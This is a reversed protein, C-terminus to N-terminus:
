LQTYKTTAKVYTYIYIYILHTAAKYLKKYNNIVKKMSTQYSHIALKHTLSPPPKTLIPFSNIIMCWAFCICVCKTLERWEYICAYM